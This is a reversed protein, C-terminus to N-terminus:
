SENLLRNFNELYNNTRSLYENQSIEKYNIYPNSIWQKKYYKILNYYNNDNQMASYFDEFKKLFNQEIIM